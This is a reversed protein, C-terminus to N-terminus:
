ASMSTINPLAACTESDAIEKRHRSTSTLMSLRRIKEASISDDPKGHAEGTSCPQFAAAIPFIFGSTRRVITPRFGSMTGRAACSMAVGRLHYLATCGPRQFTFLIPTMSPISAHQFTSVCSCHTYTISLPTRGATDLWCDYTQM